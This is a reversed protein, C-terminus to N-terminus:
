PRGHQPEWWVATHNHLTSQRGSARWFASGSGCSWGGYAEWYWTALFYVRCPLGWGLQGAWCRCWAWATVVGGPPVRLGYALGDDGWFVVRQRVVPLFAHGHHGNSAIWPCGLPRGWPMWYWGQRMPLQLVLFTQTSLRLGRPRWSSHLWCSTQLLVVCDPWSLCRCPGPLQWWGRGESNSVIGHSTRGAGVTWTLGKGWSSLVTTMTAVSPRVVHAYFPNNKLLQKKLFINENSIYRDLVLLHCFM